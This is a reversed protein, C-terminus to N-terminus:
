FNYEKIYRELGKYMINLSANIDRDNKNNCRKCEWFRISLDKVKSEKYGCRNCIQSSDKKM